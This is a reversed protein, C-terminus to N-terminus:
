VFGCEGDRPGVGAVRDGRVIEPRIVGAGRGGGIGRGARRGERLRSRGVEVAMGATAYDATVRVAVGDFGIENAPAAGVLDDPVVLDAASASREVAVDVGDSEVLAAFLFHAADEFGDELGHVDASWVGEVYDDAGGAEVRVQVGVAAPEFSGSRLVYDVARWWIFIGGAITAVCLGWIRVYPCPMGHGEEALGIVVTEDCRVFGAQRAGEAVTLEM